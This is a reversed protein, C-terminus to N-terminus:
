VTFLTTPTTRDAKIVLTTANRAPSTDIIKRDNPFNGEPIITANNRDWAIALRKLTNRPIITNLTVEGTKLITRILVEEPVQDTALPVNIVVELVPMPSSDYIENTDPDFLIFRPIDDDTTGKENVASISVKNDSLTSFTPELHLPVTTRFTIKATVHIDLSNEVNPTTYIGSANNFSDLVDVITDKWDKLIVRDPGNLYIDTTPDRVSVLTLPYTCGCKLPDLRERPLCEVPVCRKRTCDIFEKIFCKKYKKREYLGCKYQKVNKKCIVCYTSCKEGDWDNTQTNGYTTYNSCNNCYLFSKHLSM